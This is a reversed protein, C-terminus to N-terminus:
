APRVVLQIPNGEIDACDCYEAGAWSWQARAQGGAALVAERAAALDGVAFCLKCATDERWRAPAQLDIEAAVEAPVQHLALAAGGDSRMTVFGADASAERVFGLAGAYFAAVRELDTVFLLVDTLRAAM